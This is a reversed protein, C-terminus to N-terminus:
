GKATKFCPRDAVDLPPIEASVFAKVGVKTFNQREDLGFVFVGGDDQNSFSSITDYLREPCGRHASKVEVTQSECRHTQIKEILERLEDELM